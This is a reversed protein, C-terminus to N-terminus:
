VQQEITSTLNSVATIVAKLRENESELKECSKSELHTFGLIPSVQLEAFTTKYDNWVHDNIAKIPSLYGLAIAM